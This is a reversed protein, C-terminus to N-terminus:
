GAKGHAPPPLLGRQRCVRVWRHVQTLAVGNADAIKAAPSRTAKVLASYIAAVTAYFDEPYPRREPIDLRLDPLKAPKVESAKNRRAAKARRYGSGDVQSRLMATVWDDPAQSGFTTAYHSAATALDPGPVQARSAIEDALDNAWAELEALPLTRLATASLGEGNAMYLECVTWRQTDAPQRVRAWGATGNDIEFWLWGSNGISLRELHRM